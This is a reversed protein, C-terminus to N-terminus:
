HHMFVQISSVTLWGAVGAAIVLGLGVVIRVFWTFVMSEEPEQATISDLLFASSQSTVSQISAPRAPLSRLLTAVSDEAPSTIKKSPRDQTKAKETTPM